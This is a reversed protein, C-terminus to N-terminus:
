RLAVAVAGPRFWRPLYTRKSDPDGSYGQSLPSQHYMVETSILILYTVIVSDIETGEVAAIVTDRNM